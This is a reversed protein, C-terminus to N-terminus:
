LVKTHTWYECAVYCLGIRISFVRRTVLNTLYIVKLQLSILVFCRSTIRGNGDCVSPWHGYTGRIHGYARPWTHIVDCLSYWNGSFVCTACRSRILMLLFHLSRLSRHLISRCCRLFSNLYNSHVFHVIYNYKLISQICTICSNCPRLGDCLMRCCCTVCAM